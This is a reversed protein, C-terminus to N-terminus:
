RRNEWDRNLFTKLRHCNACLTQINTLDNNEHNGDIHDIDMQCSHTSVFGCLQCVKKKYRAVPSRHCAECRSGYMPLGEASWGTRRSPKGCFRCPTRKKSAM